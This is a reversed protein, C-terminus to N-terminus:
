IRRKVEYVANDILVAGTKTIEAVKYNWVLKSTILGSCFGVLFVLLVWFMIAQILNKHTKIYTVM